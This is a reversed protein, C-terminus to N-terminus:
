YMQSSSSMNSPSRPRMQCAARAYDARNTVWLVCYLSAEAHWSSGLPNLMTSVACFVDEHVGWQVPVQSVDKAGANCTAFSKSGAWAHKEQLM